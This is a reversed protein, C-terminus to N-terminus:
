CVAHVTVQGPYQVLPFSVLNGIPSEEECLLTQQIM